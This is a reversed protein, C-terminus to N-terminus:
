LVINEVYEGFEERLIGCIEGETAYVRVADLILPMLNVSEDRAGKRISDLREKVAVNDRESRLKKLKNIQREEVSSDVRLLKREGAGTEKTQFQNVGVVITDKAEVSKQYDYAADQIQKQPYGKEIAALMGGLDDIKKIYDMAGTEIDDTLKEIAYCGALPDITNTVGSEYAIVQQTRLAIEVSKETPLALAEDM